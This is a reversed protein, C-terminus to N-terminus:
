RLPKPNRFKAFLEEAAQTAQRLFKICPWTTDKALEKPKAWIKQSRIFSIDHHMKAEPSSFSTMSPKTKYCKRIFNIGLVHRLFYMPHKPLLYNWSHRQTLEWRWNPPALFTRQKTHTHTHQFPPPSYLVMTKKIPLNSVCRTSRSGM